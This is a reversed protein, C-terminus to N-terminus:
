QADNLKKINQLYIVANLAATKTKPDKKMFYKVSSVKGLKEEQELRYVLKLLETFTGEVTFVNTEVRFEKEESHMTQPFERLVTGNSQCYASVIGLLRQQIDEEKSQVSLMSEMDALQRELEAAKLPASAAHAAQSEYDNALICADVTNSIALVYTLVALVGGAILLLKNKKRYTLDRLM